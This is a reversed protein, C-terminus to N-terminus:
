RWCSRSLGPFIEEAEPVRTDRAWLLQGGVAHCPYCRRISIVEKRFPRVAAARAPRMHSFFICHPAWWVRSQCEAWVKWSRAAQPPGDGVASAEWIALFVAPLVRMFHEAALAAAAGRARGAPAATSRSSIGASAYLRVAGSLLSRRHSRRCRYQAFAFSAAVLAAKPRGAAGCSSFHRLGVSPRRYPLLTASISQPHRYVPLIQIAQCWTNAVGADAAGASFHQRRSRLSRLLRGCLRVSARRGRLVWQEQLLRGTWAM